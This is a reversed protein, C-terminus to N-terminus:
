LADEIDRCGQFREIKLSQHGPGLGERYVYACWGGDGARGILCKRQGLHGDAILRQLCHELGGSMLGSTAAIARYGPRLTGEEIKITMAPEETKAYCQM